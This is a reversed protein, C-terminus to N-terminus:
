PRRGLPATDPASRKKVTTDGSTPRAVLSRFSELRNTSRGSRNEIATTMSGSVDVLIGILLPKDPTPGGTSHDM